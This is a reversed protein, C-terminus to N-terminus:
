THTRHYVEAATCGNVTVAPALRRAVALADDYDSFHTAQWESPQWIGDGGYYDAGDHVIWGGPKLEVFLAFGKHVRDLPLSVTYRTITVIPEPTETM